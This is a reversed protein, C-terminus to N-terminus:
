PQPSGRRRPKAPEIEICTQCVDEPRNRAIWRLLPLTGQVASLGIGDGAVASLRLRWNNSCHARM